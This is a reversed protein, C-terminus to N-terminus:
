KVEKDPEVNDTSDEKSLEEKIKEVEKLLDESKRIADRTAKKQEELSKAINELDKTQNEIEEVLSKSYKRERMLLGTSIVAVGGLVGFLVNKVISM